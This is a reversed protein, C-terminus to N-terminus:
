YFIEQWQKGKWRQLNFKGRLYNLNVVQWVKYFFRFLTVTVKSVHPIFRKRILTTEPHEFYKKAGTMRPGTKSSSHVRFAGLYEKIHYIKAVALRFKHWLDIDMSYHLNIDLGGVKEYLEKKFFVAPATFYGVSRRYFFWRMSPVRVCRVIFDNENIYIVNGTIIDVDPNKNFVKAVKELAGPLLLDDSNVWCLWDGKAKQFGKNIADSQGKDPESVWILQEYKKLVDLTEDISGGDIIIHEIYPYEQNKVSLITEEIFQGQNYSPTVITINPYINM